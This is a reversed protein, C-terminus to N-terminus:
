IRGQLYFLEGTLLTAFVLLLLHKFCMRSELGACSGVHVRTLMSFTAFLITSTLFRRGIYFLFVNTFTSYFVNIDM